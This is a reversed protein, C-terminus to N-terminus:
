NKSVVYVIRNKRLAPNILRSDILCGFEPLSDLSDGPNLAIQDLQVQSDVGVIIRDIEPLNCAYRLCAQLPNLGTRELWKGWISWVAEWHRFKEPRQIAPMLLLGQLFTSRTHVEVGGKQLRGAWGSEMLRRDLINLPAQVLDFEYTDTLQELEPPGYVSIGIKDVLGVEKAQQLAEYLVLGNQGLLQEPRHLLLGYLHDVNLLSLSQSIQSAVWNAIDKCGEPAAPLKSIIKWQGVGLQGLVSESHGYGIATDLTDVGWKNAQKLINAAHDLTVQGSVNAIGYALGFQVTGLAIKNNSKM